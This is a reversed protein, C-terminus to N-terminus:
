PNRALARRVAEADVGVELIAALLQARTVGFYEAWWRCQWSEELNIAFTTPRREERAWEVPATV